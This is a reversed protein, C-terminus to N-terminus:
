RRGSHNTFKEKDIDNIYFNDNFSLGIRSAVLTVVQSFAKIRIFDSRPCLQTEQLVTSGRAKYSNHILSKITLM